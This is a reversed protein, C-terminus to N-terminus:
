CLLEERFYISMPSYRSELAKCYTTGAPAHWHIIDVGKEKAFNRIAEMIRGSTTGGRLDPVLYFGDANCIKISHNMPHPHITVVCYGVMEEDSYAAVAFLSYNEVMFAYTKKTDEANFPFPNGSEKWNATLLDAAIDFNDMPNVFKITIDGM